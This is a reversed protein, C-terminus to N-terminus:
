LKINSMLCGHECESWCVCLWCVHEGGMGGQGATVGRMHACVSTCTHMLTCLDEREWMNM